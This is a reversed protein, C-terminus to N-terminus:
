FLGDQTPIGVLCSSSRNTRSPIIIRQFAIAEGLAWSGERRYVLVSLELPVLVFLLFTLVSQLPLICFSPPVLLGSTDMEVEATKPVVDARLEM